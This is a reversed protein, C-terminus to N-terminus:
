NGARSVKQWVAGEGELSILNQVEIYAAAYLERMEHADSHAALKRELDATSIKTKPQFRSVMRGEGALYLALGEALWRPARGNGLSDVIKHVLEHRVTTELIGRRKLLALPQLEIRAAQSGAATWAPLGTRGVFDGTTENVIVEMFPLYANTPLFPRTLLSRRTDEMLQLLYEADKHSTSLPYSVRFHENSIRNRGKAGQRVAVIRKSSSGPSTSWLLDASYGKSVNMRVITGPFYKKLIQRYGFGREAMVHAGGQCLGLGHGFGSGRFFFNSGSRQLQFRSSKLLNWGLARGVIIKFYWGSITRRTSGVITIQEARGTHDQRSVFIDKLEDGVDGRSDNRLARLLDESSIVDTWRSHPMTGCYEDHVGGLYSRPRSGWLTSINATEGGCSASFYSEALNGVSDKLVEGGTADVAELVVARIDNGVPKFLQCHTTDCFDYGDAAHRRLNRVAYTRSTIALAKLAEVQTETSGETAIVGRVYEELSLTKTVKQRQLHVMVSVPIRPSSSFRAPSSYFPRAPSPSFPRAQSVDGASRNEWEGKRGNETESVAYEEFIKRSVEAADSGHGRKLFVLVGLKANTSQDKDAAFGVFWGQPRFGKLPTSTGTKGLIFLPLSDLRAKRATGFRIAGRMGQFVVERESESIALNRRVRVNFNNDAAIWPQQLQGGNVIATYAMLLQIPTVQLYDGEGLANQSHWEGGLKGASERDANIGTTQGFGFEYLLARFQSEEFREGLKAFYFNCSHAIAGSTNLPALHQAHSCVTQFGRHSYTERCLIPSSTLGFRMAALATFPKITSGPAFYEKVAMESNLITRIRGTRPDLVIITGERQKLASVAAQQLRSDVQDDSLSAAQTSLNTEVIKRQGIVALSVTLCAILGFAHAKRLRVQLWPVVRDAVTSNM